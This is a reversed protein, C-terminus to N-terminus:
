TLYKFIGDEMMMRMLNQYGRGDPDLDETYYLKVLERAEETLLPQSLDVLKKNIIFFEEGYVGRKTKGSLLNQLARNDKDNEHLEEGNQLIDDVTCSIM